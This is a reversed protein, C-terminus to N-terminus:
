DILGGSILSGGGSSLTGTLASAAGYTVGAKVNSAAVEVYTGASPADAGSGTLGELVYPAGITKGYKYATGDSVYPYQIYNTAAPTYINPAVLAVNKLGNILNGTITYKGTGTSYIGHNQENTGGSVNGTINVTASSIAQIGYCTGWTGSGGTVNGTINTTGSSQIYIGVAGNVSTGSGGTINATITLNAGNTNHVGRANAATGGTIGASTQATITVANTGTITLCTTSGALIDANITRASSCAFGGGAVGAGAGDEDATSLRLCTVNEDITVTYGNACLIITNDSQASVDKANGGSPADFFVDNASLNGTKQAFWVAM